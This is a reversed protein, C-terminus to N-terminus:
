GGVKEFILVGMNIKTCVDWCRCMTLLQQPRLDKNSPYPYPM